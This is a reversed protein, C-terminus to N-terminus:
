QHHKSARYGLLVPFYKETLRIIPIFTLLILLAVVYEFFVSHFIAPLRDFLRILLQHFGLIIITGKSITVVAIPKYSKVFFSIVFVACTGAIGGIFFLLINKGYTADYM